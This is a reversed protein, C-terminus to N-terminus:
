PLSAMGRVPLRWAIFWRPSYCGTDVIHNHNGSILEVGDRVRRSSCTKGTFVGVHWSMVAIAGPTGPTAAVGYSRFDRALNSRGPSYGLRQLVVNLYKACWLERWGVPNRGIDREMAAVLGDDGAGVARMPSNPVPEVTATKRQQRRAQTHATKEPAAQPCVRDGCFPTVTSSQSARDSAFAPTALACALAMAVILLRRTM